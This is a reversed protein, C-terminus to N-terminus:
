KWPPYRVTRNLRKAADAHGEKPREHVRGDVHLGGLRGEPQDDGPAVHPGDHARSKRDGLHLFASGNAHVAPTPTSEKPTKLRNAHNPHSREQQLKRVFRGVDHWGLRAIDSGVRCSVFGGLRGPADWPQVTTARHAHAQHHHHHPAVHPLKAYLRGQQLAALFLLYMGAREQLTSGRSGLGTSRLLRHVPKPRHIWPRHGLFNSPTSSDRRDSRRAHKEAAFVKSIKIETASAEIISGDLLTDTGAYVIARGLVNM